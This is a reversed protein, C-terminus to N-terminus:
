ADFLPGAVKKKPSRPVTTLSHATAALSAREANLELLRALVDDRVDDPWRYRFKAKKGAPEEEGDSAEPIFECTPQFDSWGYADLVGRDMADHLEQLRTIGSDTENPNHFRNYIENMGENLRVMVAVRHRYYEGGLRELETSEQWGQSFPFTELCDSPTYRLDDKFSSAFFRTWTEHVRTQVQCFFADSDCAFVNHPGAIITGTPVFAFALHGSTFPHMLVRKMDRIAEFLEPRPRIFQWWAQRAGEDQQLLREPKVKEELIAMLDPWGRAENESMQGFNIVYRHHAHRPDRNVEEGGIYPFIREANRPDKKILEHMLSIPNAVGKKDTDDFTFGMGLVISGQFSKNANEVLRAPDDDGGAHFLFATIREVMRGDLDFLGSLAGKHVHVASVVVAAEGPWRIRKRAAFITGDHHRIWRLGTGRTDGQAITNTAILGFTGGKRLLNFARRYFHAVLDANGHSEEHLTQLWVPYHERNAAAMTNKGAFPPNGVFVDFGGNDRTFVEPFEIEWHFASQRVQLDPRWADGRDSRLWQEVEGAYATRLVKRDKPKAREFFSSIVVDGILRVDALADEADRLLHEKRPVDDSSALGQIQERLRQAETVRADIFPRLLPM